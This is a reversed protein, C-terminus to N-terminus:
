HSLKSKNIWISLLTESYSQKQWIRPRAAWIRSSLLRHACVPALTISCQRIYLQKLVEHGSIYIYTYITCRIQQERCTRSNCNLSMGLCPSSASLTDAHKQRTFSGERCGTRASYLQVTWNVRSVSGDHQWVSALLLWYMIFLGSSPNKGQWPVVVFFYFLIFGGISSFVVIRCWVCM